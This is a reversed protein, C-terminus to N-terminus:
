GSRRARVRTGAEPPDVSLVVSDSSSLGSVIEVWEDGVLGIEVDQRVVRGDRVLAIWPADTGLDQLAEVPLVPADERRGAEINVSVTMFARLYEPPDQIALRVEVTGQDPDVSPAILSIRADFADEPYADASAVAPAGLSLAGLDEEAPFVLLEAPGDFAIQLLPQGPQAVDGPEVSRSLVVGDAPAEIRTLTLRVRAAELSARARAVSAPPSDGETEASALAADLRSRAELVRQEAQDVQQQTRAGVDLMSRVRELDREARSVESRAIEVSSEVSATAEILAADAEQVRARAERDDLTVLTEGREVQDGERVRVERVTGAVAAGLTATSPPRVRGTLVFTRVLDRNELGVVSVEAPIVIRVVVVLVAVLVAALVSWRVPHSRFAAIPKM